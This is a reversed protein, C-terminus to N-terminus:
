LRSLIERIGMFDIYISYCNVFDEDLFFSVWSCFAKCSAPTIFGAIFVAKAIDLFFDSLLKALIADIKM